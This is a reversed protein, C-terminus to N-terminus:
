FSLNIRSGVEILSSVGMFSALSDGAVDVVIGTAGAEFASIGDSEFELVGAAPVGAGCSVEM